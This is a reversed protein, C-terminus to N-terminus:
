SHKTEWQRLSSMTRQIFRKQTNQKFTPVHAAASRPEFIAFLQGRTDKEFRKFPRACQLRTIRSTMLSEIDNVVARVTQRRQVGEFHKLGHRIEDFSLGQEVCFAIAAVANEVNHRGSMTYDFVGLNTDNHM